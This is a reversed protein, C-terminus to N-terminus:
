SYISQLTEINDCTIEAQLCPMLIKIGRFGRIIIGKVAALGTVYIKVQYDNGIALLDLDDERVNLRLTM